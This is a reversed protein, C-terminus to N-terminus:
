FIGQRYCDRCKCTNDARNLFWYDDTERGCFVCKPFGLISPQEPQPNFKVKPGASPESPVKEEGFLEAMKQRIRIENKEQEVQRSRM